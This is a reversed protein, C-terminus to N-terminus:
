ILTKDCTVDTQDCTTGTTDVTFEDLDWGDSHENEVKLLDITWGAFPYLSERQAEIKSNEGRAWAVSDITVEDCAFIRNLRDGIWNPCGRGPGFSWKYTNYPISQLMVPQYDLDSFMTFKGGPTFGESRVGGEVRFHFPALDDTFICDFDNYTLRYKILVTNDHSAKLYIPESYFVMEAYDFGNPDKPVYAALKLYYVGETVTPFNEVVNYSSFGSYVAATSTAEVTFTHATVDSNDVLRLTPAYAGGTLNAGQILFQLYLLDGFNYKQCYRANQDEFFPILNQLFDGDGVKHFRFPNLTPIKIASM